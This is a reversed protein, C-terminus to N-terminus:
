DLARFLNQRAHNLSLGEKIFRKPDEDLIDNIKRYQRALEVIEEAAEARARWYDIRDNKRSNIDWAQAKDVFDDMDM